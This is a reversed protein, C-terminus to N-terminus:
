ERLFLAVPTQLYSIKLGQIEAFFHFTKKSYFCVHTLDRAYWWNQFHDVGQHFQTMLALMGRDKVLSLMKQFDENPRRFHEVVETAMVLDYKKELLHLHNKFYPDFEYVKIKKEAFLNALPSGKGAGYDLASEIKRNQIKTLVPGAFKLIFERYGLDNPNNEHIEYRQKEEASSLHEESPCFILDCNQCHYYTRNKIEHHTIRKLNQNQCFSCSVSM